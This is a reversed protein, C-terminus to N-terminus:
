YRAERCREAVENATGLGQLSRDRYASLARALAAVVSERQERKLHPHPPLCLTHAAVHDANPSSAGTASVDRRHLAVRYHTAAGIGAGDLRTLVADRAPVRVTHLHRVHENGPLLAPLTVDQRGAPERLRRPRARPVVAQLAGRRGDLGATDHPPRAAGATPLGGM